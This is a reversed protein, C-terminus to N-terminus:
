PICVSQINLHKCWVCMCVRMCVRVCARMCVCVCVCVCVCLCVCVFVCVEEELRLAEEQRRLQLSPPSPPSPPLFPPSPPSPPFLPSPPSPLSHPLSCLNTFCASVLAAKEDDIRKQLFLYFSPFFLYFSFLFFAGMRPISGRGRRHSRRIRVVLGCPVTTAVVRMQLLISCLLEAM